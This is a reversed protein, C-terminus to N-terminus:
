CEMWLKEIEISCNKDENSTRIERGVLITEDKEVIKFNM